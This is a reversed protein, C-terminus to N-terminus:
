REARKGQLMFNFRDTSYLKGGSAAIRAAPDLVDVDGDAELGRRFTEASLLQSGVVLGEVFRHQKTADVPRVDEGNRVHYAAKGWVDAQAFRRAHGLDQLFAPGYRAGPALLAVFGDGVEEALERVAGPEVITPPPLGYRGAAGVLDTRGRQALRGVLVLRSISEGEQDRLDEFVGLVGSHDDGGIVVCLEPTSDDVDIGVSRLVTELRHGYTHAQMVRRVGRVALQERRDDDSLLETLVRDTQDPDSSEVVLGEGLLVEIAPSPGSVVTAGCALLEFIRRACMTRSGVVSNVNLFVRYRKYAALMREYPLTGVVHEDLPPPFTYGPHDSVRSYIHLGHARAPDVVQFMQVKRHPHKDTYYTGAFAVPLERGGPVSIPNHIRPQAGFPLVDVDRGGLDRKYRPVCDEDVTFVRDFLAASGVFHEYNPPDEKNWFVTPIDASRFAEVLSRFEPSPGQDNAIEGQWVSDLGRWASEVFLLDPRSALVERWNQPTLDITQCEYKFALRSFEDLITAVRLDPRAIPGDPVKVEPIAPMPRSRRSGHRSPAEDIAARLVTPIPPVSRKPPRPVRPPRSGVLRVLDIPLRILRHPSRTAESLLSGLRWWRRGRLRRLKWQAIEARSRWRVLEALLHRVEAELQRTRSSPENDALVEVAPPEGGLVVRLDDDWLGLALDSGETRRLLLNLNDRHLSVHELDFVPELAKRITDVSVVLEPQGRPAEWLSRHAVIAVCGGPKVIRAIGRLLDGSAEEELAGAVLVASVLSRGRGLLQEQPAVSGASTPDRALDVLRGSELQTVEGGERSLREILAGAGSGLVVVDVGGKLHSLLWQKDRETGGWRSATADNDGPPM